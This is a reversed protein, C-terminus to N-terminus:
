SARSAGTFSLFIEDLTPEHSDVAVVGHEVARALVDTEPGAMTVEVTTGDTTVTRVGPCGVFLGDPTPRDFTLRLRREIRATLRRVEDLTVLRGQDIIAVHSATREVESLVHSSLLVAAGRDTHERLLSEFERQVLPDLGSTPEDLVLVRPAHMFAQVVGVKQKTGKSMEGIRTDLPLAFREALPELSSAGRGGRMRNVFDLFRRATLNDYLRLTGPLYGVDQRVEASDRRITRGLIEVRGSTAAILGMLVRMVTTKGSGNPGLFGVTQGPEVRFSIGDVGRRKGYYKTLEHLVIAPDTVGGVTRSEHADRGPVLTM